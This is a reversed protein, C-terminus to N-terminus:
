YKECFQTLKEPFGSEIVDESDLYCLTATTIKSLEQKTLIRAFMKMVGETPITGSGTIKGDVYIASLECNETELIITKM